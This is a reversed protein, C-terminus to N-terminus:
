WDKEVKYQKRDVQKAKMKEQTEKEEEELAKLIQEANEKSMQNPDQKEEEEKQQQQQQQQQQDQQDKKDDKNKENQDGNSPPPPMNQLIKALQAEYNQAIALNYRTSDDTPDLRLAAKYDSIPNGIKKYNEQVLNYIQNKVNSPATGNKEMEELQANLALISDLSTLQSMGNNGKNHYVESALHDLEIKSKEDANIKKEAINRLTKEYQNKALDNKKTKQQANAYNFTAGPHTSDITTARVFPIQSKEYEKDEFLDNGKEIYDNTQEFSLDKKNLLVVSLLICLLTAAVTIIIIKKKEM